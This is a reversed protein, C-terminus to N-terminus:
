KELYYVDKKYGHDSFMFEGKGELIAQYDRCNRCGEASEPGNKCVWNNEGLAKKVEAGKESLWELTKELPDLVVEKPEADRDLYWFGMKKVKKGYHNEALIGYIYLQLPSDEDKTGTKFDIVSLSGDPLEGVYDLNGTLVVNELLHYKPFKASKVLKELKQYNAAFNELMKLGRQGFLKEEEGSSFGGRKGHYKWWFNRFQESLQLLSPKDQNELFWKIADHVIAGLSIYPSAVQIRYGTKPNRYVNRLYYARPCKLFDGLSTNSLFIADKIYKQASPSVM